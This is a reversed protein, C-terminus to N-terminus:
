NKLFNWLLLIIGYGLIFSLISLLQSYGIVLYFVVMFMFSVILGVGILIIGLIVVPFAGAIGDMVTKVNM